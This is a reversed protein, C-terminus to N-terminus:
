HVITYTHSLLLTDQFIIYLTCIYIYLSPDICGSVHTYHVTTYTRALTLVDQFVTYLTSNYKYPSPHIYGSVNHLTYQQICPSVSEDKVSDMSFFMASIVVNLYKLQLKCPCGRYVRFCQTCHVTIYTRALILFDQFM